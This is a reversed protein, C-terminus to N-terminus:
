SSAPTVAGGSDNGSSEELSSGAAAPLLRFRFSVVFVVEFRCSGVVEVLLLGVLDFGVLVFRGRRQSRSWRGEDVVTESEEATHLLQLIERGPVVVVIWVM